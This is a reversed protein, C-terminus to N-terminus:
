YKVCYLITLILSVPQQKSTLGSFHFADHIGSPVMTSTSTFLPWSDVKFPSVPLLQLCISSLNHACPQLFPLSTWTLPNSLGPLSHNQLPVGLPETVTETLKICVESSMFLILWLPSLNSIVLVSIVDFNCSWISNIHSELSKRQWYVNCRDPWLEKAQTNKRLISNFQEIIVGMKSIHASLESVGLYRLCPWSSSSSCLSLSFLNLLESYELNLPLWPVLSYLISGSCCCPFPSSDRTHHGSGLSWIRKSWKGFTVM